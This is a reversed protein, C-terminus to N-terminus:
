EVLYYKMATMLPAFKGGPAEDIGIKWVGAAKTIGNDYYIPIYKMQAIMYIQM